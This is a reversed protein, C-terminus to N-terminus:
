AVNRLGLGTPGSIDDTGSNTRTAMNWLLVTYAVVVRACLLPAYLVAHPGGYVFCCARVSSRGCSRYEKLCFDEVM